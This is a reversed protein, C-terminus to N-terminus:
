YTVEDLSGGIDDEDETHKNAICTVRFNRVDSGSYLACPVLLSNHRFRIKYALAKDLKLNSQTVHGACGM